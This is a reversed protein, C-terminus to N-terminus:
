VLRSHIEANGACAPSFRRWDQRAQISCRTGRVRPASGRAHRASAPRDVREGCVRPQVTAHGKSSVNVPANGACAPSFRSKQSYNRTTNQTGRVRPASGLCTYGGAATRAREGCVRPQVPQGPALSCSASANGACAPSFRELVQGPRRRLRTGRVRPASGACSSPLVCGPSREGCVRPQVARHSRRLRAAHANGACAPSFRRDPVIPRANDLTGRVRPASGSVTAPESRCVSREGCVRPQVPPKLQRRSKSSANGACAPSFREDSLVAGPRDPTGRVRPASGADCLGM